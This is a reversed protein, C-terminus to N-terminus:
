KNLFEDMDTDSVVRYGLLSPNRAVDQTRPGITSRERGGRWRDVSGAPRRLWADHNITSFRRLAATLAPIPIYLDAGIM